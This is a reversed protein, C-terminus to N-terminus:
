TYVYINGFTQNDWMSCMCKQPGVFNGTKPLTLCSILSLNMFSGLM